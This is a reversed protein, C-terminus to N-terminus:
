EIEETKSKLIGIMIMSVAYSGIEIDNVLAQILFVVLVMLLALYNENETHLFHKSSSLLLSSFILIYAFLGILGVGFAIELYINHPKSLIHTIPLINTKLISFQPFEYVLTSLGYGFVPKDKILDITYKWIGERGSLAGFDIDREIREELMVKLEEYEYTIKPNHKGYDESYPVLVIFIIPLLAIIGSILFVKKYNILVKELLDLKLIIFFVFLYLGYIPLMKATQQIERRAPPFYQFIIIALILSIFACTTIVNKEKKNIQKNKKFFFLLFFPLACLAAIMGSSSASLLLLVFSMIVNPYVFISNSFGMRALSYVFFMAAAFSMYNPNELTGSIYGSINDLNLKDVGLFNILFNTNEALNVGISNLFSLAVNLVLFVAILADMITFDKKSYKLKSAVYLLFMTKVIFISGIAREHTGWTAVTIYKSFFSSIITISIFCLISIDLLTIKIESIFLYILFFVLLLIGAIYGLELKFSSFVNVYYGTEVLPIGSVPSVFPVIRFRICNMIVFYFALLIKIINAIMRELDANPNKNNNQKNKM